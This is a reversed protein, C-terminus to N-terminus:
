KSRKKVGHAIMEGNLYDVELNDFGYEKILSNTSEIWENIKQLFSETDKKMIALKISIDGSTTFYKNIDIGTLEKKIPFLWSNYIVHQIPDILNEPRKM